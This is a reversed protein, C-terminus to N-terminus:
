KKVKTARTTKQEKTIRETKEEKILGKAQLHKKEEPLVYIYKDNKTKVKVLEM